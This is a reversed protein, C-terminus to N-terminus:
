PFKFGYREFIARAEDQKLFQLFAQGITSDGAAVRAVPYVIPRHSSPPFVGAVRVSKSVAADTSYVIGFPTEGREVLALASRVSDAPALRTKVSEWVGISTLAERGYKGAPVSQPDGIALRGGRLLAALDIGQQIDVTVTQDLPEVLVLQNLLLDARSGPVILGRSAVYDMWDEDASVFLAPSAGSEIQRALTSSAAFSFRVAEHNRDTFARGIETLADALSAAAFVTTQAPCAACAALWVIITCIVRSM